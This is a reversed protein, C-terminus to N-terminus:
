WLLSAPAGHQAYILIISLFFFIQLRSLLLALTPRKENRGRNMLVKALGGNWRGSKEESWFRPCRHSKLPALAKSGQCHLVPRLGAWFIWKKGGSSDPTGLGGNVGREWPPCRMRPDFGCVGQGRRCFGGGYFPGASPSCPPLNHRRHHPLCVTIDGKIAKNIEEWSAVILMSSSRRSGGRDQERCTLVCVRVGGWVGPRPSPLVPSACAKIILTLQSANCCKSTNFCAKRLSQTPM